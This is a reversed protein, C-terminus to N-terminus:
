LIRVLPYFSSTIKGNINVGGPNQKEPLYLENQNMPSIYLNNGMISNGSLIDSVLNRNVGPMGSYQFLNNISPFKQLSKISNQSSSM